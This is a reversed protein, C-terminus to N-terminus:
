NRRNGRAAKATVPPVDEVEVRNNVLKVGSTELALSEAHVSDWKSPTIGALTVIGRDVTAQISSGKLLTLKQDLEKQIDSDKVVGAIEARTKNISTRLSAANAKGYHYGLATMVVMM